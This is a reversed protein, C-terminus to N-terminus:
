CFAILGIGGIIAPILTIAGAGALAAAAATAGALTGCDVKGGILSNMSAVDLHNPVPAVIVNGMAVFFVSALLLVASIKHLM